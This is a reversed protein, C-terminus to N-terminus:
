DLTKITELKMKQIELMEELMENGPDIRLRLEIIEIMLIISSALEAKTGM